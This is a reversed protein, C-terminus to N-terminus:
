RSLLGISRLWSTVDGGAIKVFYGWASFGPLFQAAPAAQALEAPVREAGGGGHTCFPIVTKGSLDAAALFSKVPLSLGGWWVPTGLFIVDYDSLDTVESALPPLYGRDLDERVQNVAARYREPYAEASRIELFDGGTKALISQALAMTRGTRSFCAVLVKPNEPLAEARPAGPPVETVTSKIFWIVGCAVVVLVLFLILFIKKLSM